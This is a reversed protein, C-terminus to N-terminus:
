GGNACQSPYPSTAVEYTVLEGDMVEQAYYGYGASLLPEGGVPAPGSVLQQIGDILVPEGSENVEPILKSAESGRYRLIKYLDGFLKGQSSMNDNLPGDTEVVVPVETEDSSVEDVVTVVTEPSVKEVIDGQGGMFGGRAFSMAPLALAGVLAFAVVGSLQSATERSSKM